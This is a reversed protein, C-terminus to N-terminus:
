RKRVVAAPDERPDGGGEGSRAIMRQHHVVYGLRQDDIGGRIVRVGHAKAMRAQGYVADLKMGLANGGLVSM